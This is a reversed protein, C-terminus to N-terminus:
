TSGGVKGDVNAQALANAVFGSPERDALLGVIHRRLSLDTARRSHGVEDFATTADGGAHSLLIQPGGPHGRLFATIDFVGGHLAIWAGGDEPGRKEELESRAIRRGMWGQRLLVPGEDLCLGSAPIPCRAARNCGTARRTSVLVRAEDQPDPRVAYAVGGSGKTTPGVTAFYFDIIV